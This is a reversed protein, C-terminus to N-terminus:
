RRARAKAANEYKELWVEATDGGDEAGLASLLGGVMSLLRGDLVNVVESLRAKGHGNWIDLAVALILAEGSSYARAKAADYDKRLGNGDFCGFFGMSNCLVECIRWHQGDRLM